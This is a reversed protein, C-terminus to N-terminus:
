HVTVSKKFIRIEGFVGKQSIVIMGERVLELIALFTAIVENKDMSSLNEFMDDFSFSVADTLLGKIYRMKEDVSYENMLVTMSPEEVDKVELREIVRAYARVLDVVSLEFWEGDDTMVPQTERVFMGSTIEEQERLRDSASQFKRYELLQQILEPPLRAETDPEEFGPDPLLARSKYYLLRAAMVAFTSALEIRLEGARRIFDMFDDTITHISIDFIDVRYSEILNWLLSLPGEEESGEPGTWKVVFGPFEDPIPEAPVAATKTPDIM